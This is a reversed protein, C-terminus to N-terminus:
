SILTLTLSNHMWKNLGKNGSVNQKLFIFAEGMLEVPQPDLGGSNDTPTFRLLDLSEQATSSRRM